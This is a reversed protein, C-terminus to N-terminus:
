DIMKDISNFNFNSYVRYRIPLWRRKSDESRIYSQNSKIVRHAQEFRKCLAVSRKEKKGKKRKKQVHACTRLDVSQM